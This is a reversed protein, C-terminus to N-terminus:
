SVKAMAGPVSEVFIEQSALTFTDRDIVIGSIDVIFKNTSGESSM